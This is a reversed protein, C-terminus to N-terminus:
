IDYYKKLMNIVSIQNENLEKKTWQTRYKNFVRLSNPFTSINKTFYKKYKQVYDLRGQSANKGRGLLILNGLKNTLESRDIDTFDKKWQSSDQPTQPLIHEVTIQSFASWKTTKNDNLLFDLKLLINKVFQRGYVKKEINKLLNVKDLDFLNTKFLDDPTKHVEIGKLIANMNEIRETPTLQGIWDGTFKKDLLLM